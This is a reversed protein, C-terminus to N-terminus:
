VFLQFKNKEYALLGQAQMRSLESSMASRDVCLYDALQQRNYPITFVSSKAKQREESLYSLLKEKTNPRSLHEIKKNLVINKRAICSIMNQVIIQHYPCVQGCPRLIKDYQLYLIECKQISLITVPIEKIEACVFAELFMDGPECNTLIMRNGDYDEKMIQIHGSLVIGISSVTDGAVSIYEDKSYTQIHADLCDLVSKINHEEIDKFLPSKKLTVLYHNM